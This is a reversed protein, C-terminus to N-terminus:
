EIPDPCPHLTILALLEARVLDVDGARAGAEIRGAALGELPHGFTAASGKITHAIIAVEDLDGSNCCELMRALQRPLRDDFMAQLGAFEPLDLLTGARPAKGGLLEALLAALAARDVPKGVCHSFGSALYRQVDEAMVNATLAVLPGSYGTARILSTAQMGDMVPMQIDMLIVDFADGLALELAQAGDEALVVDLGLAGLMAALLKRNDVGDEALLVKGALQPADPLVPALAAVPAPVETLWRVDLPLKAAVGFDFVSGQGPVSSVAVEGGMMRVLRRVLHLGLGTGGYKRAVTGDAQAFPTFLKDIQDESMGIGTDFVSCRLAQGASDYWITMRVSGHETFKVANSCLNFLVQRWRTPDGMVVAPFPYVVATVFSIGKASAQAAMVTELGQAAELPSFAVHELYLRKAEIKSIDLMDNIIALLHQGNRVIVESAEQRAARDGAESLTEAFGIIATLPTRIEHSMMALFESKAHSAAEADTKLGETVLLDADRQLMARYLVRFGIGLAAMSCLAVIGLLTSFQRWQALFLKDTVTINVIVPYKDLLRPAGMRQVLAGHEAFRPGETLLVGSTQHMREILEYSTGSLNAKGMQSDVHPWRALLTFDRRYLSISTGEGLSIKQYFDSLYTSSMGVLVMGLFEGHAGNIRRSLYFTWQGNGKNRVPASIFVGLRPNDRRERFYDRDSLNIAPAPFSRTFNIVDGNAAVITAVDIHPLAAIKDRMSQFLAQEGMVARLSADSDVRRQGAMDVINDLILYASSLEQSTQEALVLSLNGLLRRWSSIEQNRASWLSMGIASLVTLALLWGLLVALTRSRLRRGGIAVGARKGQVPM